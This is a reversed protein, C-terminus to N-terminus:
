QILARAEDRLVEAHTIMADLVEGVKDSRRNMGDIETQRKRAEGFAVAVAEETESCNAVFLFDDLFHGLNDAIANSRAEFKRFLRHM